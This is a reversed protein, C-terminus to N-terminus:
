WKTKSRKKERERKIARLAKLDAELDQVTRGEYSTPAHYLTIFYVFMRAIVGIAFVIIIVRAASM